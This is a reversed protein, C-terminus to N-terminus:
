EDKIEKEIEQINIKLSYLKDNYKANLSFSDGFDNALIRLLLERYIQNKNIDITKQDILDARKSNNHKESEDQM